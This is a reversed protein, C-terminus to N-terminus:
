MRTARTTLREHGTEWTGHTCKASSSPNLLTKQFLLEPRCSSLKGNAPSLPENRFIVGLFLTCVTLINSNINTWLEGDQCLLKCIGSHQGLWDVNSQSYLGSRQSMRTRHENSTFARRGFKGPPGIALSATARSAADDFKANTERAKRMLSINHQRQHQKSEEIERLIWYRIIKTRTQM